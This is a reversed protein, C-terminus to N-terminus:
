MGRVNKYSLIFAAGANFQMNNLTLDDDLYYYKYLNIPDEYRTGAKNVNEPFVIYRADFFLRFGKIKYSIGACGFYGTQSANRMASRNVIDKQDANTTTSLAGSLLALDVGAQLYPMVKKGPFYYKVSLPIDIYRLEESYRITSSEVNFLTHQYTTSRYSFGIEAWFNKYARKEAKLGLQFGPKMKYSAQAQGGPYVVSYQNITREFPLNMGGSLGIAFTPVPKFKKFLAILKPDDKFKDPAYDPSIKMIEGAAKDVAELNDVSIYSMILLKYAQIRDTKDLSCNDITRKLLVIADDYNGQDYNNGADKLHTICSDTQAHGKTANICIAVYLFLYLLRKMTGPILKFFMM